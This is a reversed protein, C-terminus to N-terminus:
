GDVVDEVDPLNPQNFVVALVDRQMPEPLAALTGVVCKIAYLRMVQRAVSGAGESMGMKGFDVEVINYGELYARVSGGDGGGDEAANSLESPGFELRVDWPLTEQVTEAFGRFREGVETEIGAAHQLATEPSEDHEEIETM